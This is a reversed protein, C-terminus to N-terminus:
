GSQSFENEEIDIASEDGVAARRAVGESRSQGVHVPKSAFETSVIEGPAGIRLDRVHHQAIGSKRLLLDVRARAAEPFAIYSRQCLIDIAADALKGTNARKEIREAAVLADGEAKQGSVDLWARPQLEAGRRQIIVKGEACEATVRRTPFVERGDGDLARRRDAAEAE